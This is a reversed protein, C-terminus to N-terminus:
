NNALAGIASVHKWYNQFKWVYIFLLKVLKKIKKWEFFIPTAQAVGM